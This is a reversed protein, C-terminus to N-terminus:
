RLRGFWSTSRPTPSCTRSVSGPGATASATTAATRWRRESVSQRRRISASCGIRMRVLVRVDAALRSASCTTSCPSWSTTTSIAAPRRVYGCRCSRCGIGARRASSRSPGTDAGSTSPAALNREERAAIVKVGIAAKLRFALGARISGVIDPTGGEERHEVDDLYDHAWPSVYRVTGGGPVVPVPNRVLDRRIALVGPSGPGGVMKHPSLFVADKVGLPDVDRRTTMAIEVYPAAAAYDWCALADHRHLLRSIASTDSLVGTVNSAASFSGIRLPRHAHSVLERELTDTCIQGRADLPIVVVDAITERWSIENSHHEYPGVFVVPREHPALEAGIAGNTRRLGLIGILEDIAGTTGSGCFIVATSDDGGVGERVAQRAQERLRSTRRGTTSSETHTNAYWPLVDRRIADEIMDVARGSATYDAYTVRRPGFPGVRVAERGILGDQVRELMPTGTAVVDREPRSSTSDGGGGSM